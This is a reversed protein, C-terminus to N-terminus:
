CNLLVISRKLYSSIGVCCTVDIHALKFIWIWDTSFSDYMCVSRYGLFHFIHIKCERIYNCYVGVLNQQGNAKRIASSARCLNHLMELPFGLSWRIKVWEVAKSFIFFGSISKVVTLMSSKGWFIIINGLLLSFVTFDKWTWPLCDGNSLQM